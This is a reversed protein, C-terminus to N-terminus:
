LDHFEWIFSIALTLYNVPISHKSNPLNKFSSKYLDLRTELDQTSNAKSSLKLKSVPLHESKNLLLKIDSCTYSRVLEKAKSLIM